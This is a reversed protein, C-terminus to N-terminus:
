KIDICQIKRVLSMVKVFYGERYNATPTKDIQDKKRFIIKFGPM